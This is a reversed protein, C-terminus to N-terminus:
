SDRPPKPDNFVLRKVMRIFLGGAPGSGMQVGDMVARIIHLGRGREASPEPLPQRVLLPDLGRGDDVVDIVCHDDEAVVSISFGRVQGAHQVVNACAEGIALAVDRRSGEAINISRLACEVTHRVITVTGPESPLRLTMDLWM